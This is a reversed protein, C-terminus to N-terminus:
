DGWITARWPPRTTAPGRIEFVGRDCGLDDGRSEMYPEDAVDWDERSRRGHFARGGGM